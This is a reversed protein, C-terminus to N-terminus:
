NIPSAASGNKIAQIFAKVKSVLDNASAEAQKIVALFYNNLSFVIIDEQSQRSFIMHNFRTFGLLSRITDCNLGSFAIFPFITDANKGQFALGAGDYKV